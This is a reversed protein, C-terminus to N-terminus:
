RYSPPLRPLHWRIVTLFARGFVVPVRFCLLFLVAQIFDSAVGKCRGMGLGLAFCVQISGKRLRSLLYNKHSEHNHKESSFASTASYVRSFQRTLNRVWCQLSLPTCTGSNHTSTWVTSIRRPELPVPVLKHKIFLTIGGLVLATAIGVQFIM